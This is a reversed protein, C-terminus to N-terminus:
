KRLRWAAKISEAAAEIDLNETNIVLDYNQPDEIDANFFKRIFAKRDSETKITLQKAEETSIGLEKAVNQIRMELPAIIRVRFIEERPLIFNAGRGLIVAHGHKGITGIVRMLHHLYEYSWLHRENTVASIMDELSSVGKEDLTEVVTARMHASEAVGQIIERDFLDLGIEEAIRKAVVRGESGAQRSITIVPITSKKKGREASGVKWKNIQDDIIQQISRTKKIKM